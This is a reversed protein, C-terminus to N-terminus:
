SVKSKDGTTLKKLALDREKQIVQMNEQLEKLKHEYKTKMIEYERQGSELHNILEEQYSIDKRIRELTAVFDSDKDASHDSHEGDSIDAIAQEL